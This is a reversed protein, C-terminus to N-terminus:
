EDKCPYDETAVEARTQKLKKLIEESNQDSNKEIEIRKQYKKTLNNLGSQFNLEAIKKLLSEQTKSDLGAIKEALEEIATLM